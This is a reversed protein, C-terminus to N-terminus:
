MKRGHREARSAPRKRSASRRFRPQTSNKSGAACGPTPVFVTIGRRLALEREPRQPADPNVKIRKASKWPELEFLREAAKRAGVFNPIRGQPPFPFAALGQKALQDWVFHRAASKSPFRRDTSDVARRRNSHPVQRKRSLIHPIRSDVLLINFFDALKTRAANLSEVYRFVYAEGRRKSRGRQVVKKFMRRGIGIGDAIM